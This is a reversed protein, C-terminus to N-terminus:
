REWRRSSRSWRFRSMKLIVDTFYMRTTVEGSVAAAAKEASGDAASLNRVELAAQMKKPQHVEVPVPHQEPVIERHNEM